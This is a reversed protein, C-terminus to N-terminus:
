AFDGLGTGLIVGVEPASAGKARQRVAAAAEEIRLREESAMKTAQRVRGTRERPAGGGAQGRGGRREARGSRGVEQGLVGAARAGGTPGCESGAAAGRGRRVPWRRAGLVGSFLGAGAANARGAAPPASVGRKGVGRAARALLGDRRAGPQVRLALRAVGGPVG